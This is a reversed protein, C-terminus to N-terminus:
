NENKEQEKELKKEEKLEKQALKKFDKLLFGDPSKDNIMHFNFYYLKADSAGMITKWCRAKRNDPGPGVKHLIVVNEDYDDIAQKVEERTAIKVDYPYVKKIKKLTNVKSGLEDQVVYLTKNKISHMSKNYHRIINHSNFNPNDKTLKVHNQIFRIFIGLKYIYEEEDVDLYSIPAQGLDPMQITFEYDGGLTLCLFNYQARTKDNSYFVTNLMLFSKTTDFRIKDFEAKKYTFYEYETVNWHKEITEKMKYNYELLPNSELVITTKTRLFRAIEEPSGVTQQSFGNSYILFFSVIVLIKKM